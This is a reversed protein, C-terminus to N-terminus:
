KGFMMSRLFRVGRSLLHRDFKSPTGRLLGLLVLPNRYFKRQMKHFERWLDNPDDIWQLKVWPSPEGVAWDGRLTGNKKADDYVWTRPLPVLIGGNVATPRTSLLFQATQAITEPTEGPFGVFLDAYCRLGAKKTRRIAERNKEVTTRKNMADLITQSGSEIGYVVTRVGAKRMESLLEDDICDVRSRVKLDLKLGADRILRCIEICRSKKSTFLDDLFDINTIGLEALYVLEKVVNQASRMRVGRSVKFCFKCDFPCGRSTMVTDMMGKRDLRWYVGNKYNDWLLTRDAIPIADIDKPPEGVPLCEFGGETRYSLGPVEPKAANADLAEVLQPLTYDCEGAMSYDLEPFWELVQEPIATCHPGGAVLKVEPMAWRMMKLFDRVSELFEPDTMVSVGVLDPKFDVVKRAMEELGGAYGDRDFVGIEHGHDRLITALSLLAAPSSCNTDTSRSSTLVLSVRM